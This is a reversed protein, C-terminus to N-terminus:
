ARSVLMWLIAWVGYVGVEVRHLIWIKWSFSMVDKYLRENGTLALLGAGSAAAKDISEFLEYFM